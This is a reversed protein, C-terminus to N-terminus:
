SNVRRYTKVFERAIIYPQAYAIGYSVIPDYHYLPPMMDRIRLLVRERNDGVLKVVTAVGKNNLFFRLHIDADEPRSVIQLNPLRKGIVKVIIDRLQADIGTNVFVKTVGRLEEPQGYEINPTQAYVPLAVALILLCMWSMKRSNM